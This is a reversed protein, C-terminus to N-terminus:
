QPKEEDDFEVTRVWEGDTKEFTCIVNIPKLDTEMLNGVSTRIVIKDDSESVLYMPYFDYTASHLYYTGDIMGYDIYTLLDFDVGHDRAMEHLKFISLFGDAPESPVATNRKLIHVDSTIERYTFYGTEHAMYFPATYMVNPNDMDLWFVHADANTLTTFAIVRDSPQYFEGYYGRGAFNINESDDLTLSWPLYGDPSDWVGFFYKRFLDYDEPTPLRSFDVCVENEDNLYAGILQYASGELNIPNNESEAEESPATVTDATASATTTTTTTHDDTSVSSLDDSATTSEPRGSGCATISFLMIVATLLALTRKM